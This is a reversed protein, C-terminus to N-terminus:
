VARSRGRGPTAEVGTRARGGRCPCDSGGQYRGCEEISCEGRVEVDQGLLKEVNGSSVLQELWSIVRSTPNDDVTGFPGFGTLVFRVKPM